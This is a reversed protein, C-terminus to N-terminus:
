FFSWYVGCRPQDCIWIWDVEPGNRCICFAQSPPTSMGIHCIASSRATMFTGYLVNYLTKWDKQFTTCSGLLCCHWPQQHGPEKYQKSSMLLWLISQTTCFLDYDDLPSLNWGSQWRQALFHYFISICKEHKRSNVWHLMTIGYSSMSWPWCQSLYHSTAQHCWAMVQVLTSKDNTLDWPM